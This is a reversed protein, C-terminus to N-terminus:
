DLSFFTKRTVGWFLSSVDRMGERMRWVIDTRARHRNQASLLTQNLKEGRDIATVTEQAKSQKSSRNRKTIGEHTPGDNTEWRNTALLPACLPPTWDASSFIGCRRWDLGQVVNVIPSYYDALVLVPRQNTSAISITSFHLFGAKLSFIGQSTSWHNKHCSNYNSVRFHWNRLTNNFRICLWLKNKIGFVDLAIFIGRNM